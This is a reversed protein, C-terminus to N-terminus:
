MKNVQEPFDTPYEETVSTILEEDTTSTVPDNTDIVNTDKKKSLFDCSSGLLFFSLITFLFLVKRFIIFQM